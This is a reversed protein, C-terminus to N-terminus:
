RINQFQWSLRIIKDLTIFSDVWFFEHDDWDFSMLIM